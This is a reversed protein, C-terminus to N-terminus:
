YLWPILKRVQKRYAEYQPYRQHLFREELTAKRDLLATLLGSLALTWLNLHALTSGWAWLLLGAYIPHRVVRYLGEQVLHGEPRPRPLATLNRGLQWAAVLLVAMGLAGLGRGIWVLWFPSSSPTLGLALGLLLLLGFQGVVYWGGAEGFRM